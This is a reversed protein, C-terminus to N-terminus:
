SRASWSAGASTASGCRRSCGGGRRSRASPDPKATRKRPPVIRIRAEGAVAPNAASAARVTVAGGAPPTAPARYLGTRSITGATASWTVGAPLNTVAATLQVSTGAVLSAPAGSIAVSPRADAITVTAAPPSLPFPSSTSRAM